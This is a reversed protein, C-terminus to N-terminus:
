KSGEEAICGTIDIDEQHNINRICAERRCQTKM